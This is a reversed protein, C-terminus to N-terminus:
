LDWLYESMLHFSVVTFLTYYKWPYSKAECLKSIQDFTKIVSGNNHSGDNTPVEEGSLSHVQWM